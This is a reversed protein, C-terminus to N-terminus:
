IMVSLRTPLWAVPQATAAQQQELKCSHGFPGLSSWRLDDDGFAAIPAFKGNENENVKMEIHNCRESCLSWMELNRVVVM